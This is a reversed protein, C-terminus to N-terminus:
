NEVNFSVQALNQLPIILTKDMGKETKTNLNEPTDVLGVM